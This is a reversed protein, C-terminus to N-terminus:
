QGTRLFPIAVKIAFGPVSGAAAALPRSASEGEGARQVGGAVPM